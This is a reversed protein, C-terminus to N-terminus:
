ISLIKNKPGYYLTVKRNRESTITIICVKSPKVFLLCSSEAEIIFDRKWGLCEMDTRYFNIIEAKSQETEFSLVMKGEEFCVKRPEVALPFSLDHLRAREEATLISTDEQSSSSVVVTKKVCGSLSCLLLLLFVQKYNM